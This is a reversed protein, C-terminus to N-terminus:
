RASKGSLADNYLQVGSVPLICTHYVPKKTENDVREQLQKNAATIAALKAEWAKATADAKDQATKQDKADQILKARENSHDILLRLGFGGSFAVLFALACLSLKTWTLEPM